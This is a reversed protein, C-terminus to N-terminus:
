NTSRENIANSLSIGVQMAVDESLDASCMICIKCQGLLQAAEPQEQEGM